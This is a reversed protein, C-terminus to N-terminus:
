AVREVLDREKIDLYSALLAVILADSDRGELAGLIRERPFGTETRIDQCKLRPRFRIMRDLLAAAASSQPRELRLLWAPGSPARRTKPSRKGEIGRGHAIMHHHLCLWEIELPHDYGKHHHAIADPDGCEQCPQRSITGAALAKAVLWQAARQAVRYPSLQVSVPRRVRQYPVRLLSVDVVSPLNDYVRAEVQRVYERTCGFEHGIEELTWDYGDILGHRLSVMQKDRAHIFECAAAAMSRRATIVENRRYENIARIAGVPLPSKTYKSRCLVCRVGFWQPRTGCDGCLQAQRRRQRREKSAVLMANLHEQCMVHGPKPPNPCPSTTCLGAAKREETVRKAWGRCDDCTRHPDVRPRKNCFVCANPDRPQGLARLPPVPIGREITLSGIM